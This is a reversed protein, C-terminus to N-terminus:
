RAMATKSHQTEQEATFFDQLVDVLLLGVLVNVNIIVTFKHAHATIFTM